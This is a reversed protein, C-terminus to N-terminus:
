RQLILKLNNQQLRIKLWGELKTKEQRSLPSPLYLLVLFASGTQSSDSFLPTPYIIANKLSPYQAKLEAYVRAGLQVQYNMSDIKLRLGKEQQEKESLAKALQNVQENQEVSKSESLYAFGQKVELTAPELNYQKLESKLQMIEEPSIEKGGFVLSITRSRADIKKSLLYDNSFHAENVVFRNANKTFRDRRVVDVGFYISPILTVMVVVWVIRHAIKNARANQM